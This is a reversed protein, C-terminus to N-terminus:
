DFLEYNSNWVVDGDDDYYDGIDGYYDVEYHRTVVTIEDDAHQPDAAYQKATDIADDMNEIYTGQYDDNICIDYYLEDTEGHAYKNLWYVLEKDPISVEMRIEAGYAYSYASMEFTGDFTTRTYGGGISVEKDIDSIEDIVSELSENLLAEGEEKTDPRVEYVRIDVPIDDIGPNGGYYYTGISKINITGKCNGNEPELYDHYENYENYFGGSPVQTFTLDEIELTIASGPGAMIKNKKVSKTNANVAKRKRMKM